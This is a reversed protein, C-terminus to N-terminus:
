ASHQKAANEIRSLAAELPGRIDISVFPNRECLAILASGALFRRYESTQEVLKEAAAARGAPPASKFDFLRKMLAVQNGETVGNLGYKAIQELDPNGAQRLRDQLQSIGTDAQSKAANWIELPDGGRPEAPPASPKTAEAAGDPAISREAQELDRQLARIGNIAPAFAGERIAGVVDRVQSALMQRADSEPLAKIRQALLTAAQQLKQQTAAGAQTQAPAQIPTQASSEPLKALVTEIRDLVAGARPGDGAKLFGAAEVIAKRLREGTEGGVQAIRPQLSQIRAILAATDVAPADEARADGTAAAEDGDDAEDEGDLAADPTDDEEEAEEPLEEIDEELVNGDADLVRVNRMVKNSKLFKKLKKALAPLVRDCQLTVLKGEVSFTGFAMKNGDGEARLAKGMIAGSKKRHLALLDSEASQGPCYAFQMPRKKAIKLMKKLDDGAVAFDTM